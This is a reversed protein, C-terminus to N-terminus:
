CYKSPEEKIGSKHNTLRAFAYLVSSLRNLFALTSPNLKVEGGEVAEVARRETRRAITRATDFLASVETGGSVFFTKIPPLEKEVLDTVREVEKM